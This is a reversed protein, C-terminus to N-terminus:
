KEKLKYSETRNDKLILSISKDNRNTVKYYITDEFCNTKLYTSLIIKKQNELKVYDILTYECVDDGEFGNNKYFAIKNKRISLGSLSDCSSIWEGSPINQNPSLEEKIIVQQNCGIIISFITVLLIIKKLV